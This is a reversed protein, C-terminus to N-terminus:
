TWQWITGWLRVMGCGPLTQRTTGADQDSAVDEPRLSAAMM